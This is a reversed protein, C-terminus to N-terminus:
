GSTGSGWGVLRLESRWFFSFEQETWETPWWPWGWAHRTRGAAERRWRAGWDQAQGSVEGDGACAGMKRRTAGDQAWEAEAHGDV